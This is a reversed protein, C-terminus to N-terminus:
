PICSLWHSRLHQPQRCTLRLHGRAEIQHWWWKCFTIFRCHYGASSYLCFMDQRLQSCSTFCPRVLFYHRNLTTYCCM